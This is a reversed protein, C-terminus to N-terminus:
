VPGYISRSLQDMNNKIIKFVHQNNYSTLLKVKFDKHYDMFSLRRAACHYAEKLLEKKDLNFNDILIFTLMKIRKMNKQDM